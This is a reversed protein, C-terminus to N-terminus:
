AVRDLADIDIATPRRIVAEGVERASGPNQGTILRGDEVVHSLFPVSAKGSTSCDARATASRPSSRPQKTSILWWSRLIPGTPLIQCLETAVPLYISAYEIAQVDAIKLTNELLNMYRRDQYHESVAGELGFATAMESIVLREPDIPVRGGYPSAIDMSYGAAEAVDWFHTLESFWLGTRWGVKEFSEGITVVILIKTNSM